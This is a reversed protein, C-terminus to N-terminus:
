TMECHFDLKIFLFALLMNGEAEMTKITVDTKTLLTGKLIANEFTKGFCHIRVYDFCYDSDGLDICWRIKAEESGETRALYM